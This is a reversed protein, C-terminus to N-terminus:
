PPAAPAEGGPALAEAVCRLIEDFQFPKTLVFDVGVEAIRVPDVHATWGTIFGVPLSPRSKLIRAVEWGSMRPMAIDLLVLDFQEVECCALGEPGDPAEVVKHGQAELLERLVARVEPEDDIILIKARRPSWPRVPPAKTEAAAARIPLRVTFTGGKGEARDLKIEGGHRLVIGYVVSLGPETRRRVDRLIGSRTDEVTVRVWDGDRAATLRVQGGQPMAELARLLRNTFAERLESPDGAVPPVPEAEIRVDYTIGAMQAENEWRPRTFERVEDLLQALDVPVHPRPSRDLTFAQIREITRAGDLAAQEIVRLQRVLDPDRREQRLLLQTPGLIAALLNNFDHAVGSALQGFTRLRESKVLQEQATKLSRLLEWFLRLGGAGIVEVGPPKTRLLDELVAPQGTVELVLDVPYAFVELHHSATPIGLARAKGLGPAEARPDVVVAVNVAPWDLLVDLLASGGTGGGVLGIRIRGSAEDARSAM